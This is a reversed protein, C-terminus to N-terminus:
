NKKTFEESDILYTYLLYVEDENFATHTLLFNNITKYHDLNFDALLMVFGEILRKLIQFEKKDAPKYLKHLADHVTKMGYIFTESNMTFIVGNIM